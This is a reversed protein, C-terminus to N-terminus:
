TYNSASKSDYGMRQRAPAIFHTAASSRLVGKLSKKLPELATNFSHDSDAATCAKPTAKDLGAVYSSFWTEDDLVTSNALQERLEEVKKFHGGGSRQLCADLGAVSRTASVDLPRCARVCKRPDDAGLFRFMREIEGDFDAMVASLDVLQAVDPTGMLAEASQALSELGSREHVAQAVVGIRPPLRQLMQTWSTTSADFGRLATCLEHLEASGCAELLAAPIRDSPIRMPNPEGGSADYFFGSLVIDLPDRVMLVARLALSHSTSTASSAFREVQHKWSGPTTQLPRVRLANGNVKGGTANLCEEDLRINDDAADALGPDHWSTEHHDKEACHLRLQDNRRGREGHGRWGMAVTLIKDMLETGTKHHTGLLWFQSDSPACVSSVKLKGYGKGLGELEELQLDSDTTYAALTHGTRRAPAALSVAALSLM